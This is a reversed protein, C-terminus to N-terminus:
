SQRWDTEPDFSKIAAATMRERIIGRKGDPSRWWVRFTGATNSRSRYTWGSAHKRTGPMASM